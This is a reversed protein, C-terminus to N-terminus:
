ALRERVTRSIANAMGDVAPSDVKDARRLLVQSGPLPEFGDEAALIRSDKPRTSAGLLTVALGATVAAQIGAVSPSSYAIRYARDQRDLARLAWDRWWCGAEFMALPLPEQEHALHRSSTVWVTPDHLLVEGPMRVLDSVLIALDLRGGALAEDLEASLGCQVSVMVKPHAEAFEALLRPLVTPGYEEPLGIRVSGELQPARLEEAAEDLLRLVRRATGLLAEGEATPVVGRAGRAFLRHGVRAELRKMQMSVASQTRHVARAAATFSGGDAIAVFTRLQDSDLPTNM